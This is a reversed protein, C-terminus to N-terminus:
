AAIILLHIISSSSYKNDPPKVVSGYLSYIKAKRGGNNLINLGSDIMIQTIIM